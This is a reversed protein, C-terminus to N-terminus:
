HHQWNTALTNFFGKFVLPKQQKDNQYSYFSM